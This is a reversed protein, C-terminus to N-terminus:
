MDPPLPQPVTPRRSFSFFSLGTLNHEVAGEFCRPLIRDLLSKGLLFIENVSM